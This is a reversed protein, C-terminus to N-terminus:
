RLTKEFGASEIDTSNFNTNRKDVFAMVLMDNSHYKMFTDTYYKALFVLVRWEVMVLILFFDTAKCQFLYISSALDFEMFTIPM